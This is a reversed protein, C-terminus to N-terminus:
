LGILLGGYRLKNQGQELTQRIGKV